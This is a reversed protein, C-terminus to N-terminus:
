ASTIGDSGYSAFPSSGMEAMITLSIFHHTISFSTSFEPMQNAVSVFSEGNEITEVYDDKYLL